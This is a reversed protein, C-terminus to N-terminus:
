YTHAGHAGMVIAFQLYGAWNPAGSFFSNGSDPQTEREVYARVRSFETPAFTASLATRMVRPQVASEPLGLVDQRLGVYWRRALQLVVQSYLGGDVLGDEDPTMGYAQRLFFETTWALSFYSGASSAPKFKFYADVGTLWTRAGVRQPEVTEEAIGPSMGWASHLGVALSTVDTFPVFTRLSTIYTLDTRKGGGFTSLRSLEEPVGVSLAEGTLQLYFPTPALWSLQLGPARLGDAGLYAENILPRRTFDQVHLHQGNQRGLGSRFIGAKVQLNAPLGTTTIFGEEVELGELNPIALFLDARLYPDVTAQLAVEVEQVTFGAPHEDSGNLLNPDDGALSYHPRGAIGGTVDLMVSIDPNLSQVLRALPNSAGPAPVSAPKAAKLPAAAAADLESALDSVPPTPATGADMGTDQAHVVSRLLLLALFSYTYTKNTM